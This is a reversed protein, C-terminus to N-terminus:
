GGGQEVERLTVAIHAAADVMGGPMAASAADYSEEVTFAEDMFMFAAASILGVRAEVHRDRHRRLVPGLDVPVAKGDVLMLYTDDSM